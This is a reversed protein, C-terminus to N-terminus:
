ITSAVAAHVRRPAGLVPLLAAAASFVLFHLLQLATCRTVLCSRQLKYVGATWNTWNARWVRSLSASEDELDGGHTQTEVCLTWDLDKLLCDELNAELGHCAKAQWHASLTQWSLGADDALWCRQAAPFQCCRRLASCSIIRTALQGDTFVRFLDEKELM